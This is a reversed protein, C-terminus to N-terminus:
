MFYAFFNIKRYVFEFFLRKKGKKIFLCWVIREFFMNLFDYYSLIGGLGKRATM